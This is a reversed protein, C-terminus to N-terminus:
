DRKKGETAAAPLQGYEMLISQSVEDDDDPENLWIDDDDDDEAGVASPADCPYAEITQVALADDTVPVAITTSSMTAATEIAANRCVNM